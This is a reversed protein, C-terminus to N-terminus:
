APKSFFCKTAPCRNAYSSVFVSFVCVNEYTCAVILIRVWLDSTWAVSSIVRAPTTTSVKVAKETALTRLNWYLTTLSFHLTVTPTTQM